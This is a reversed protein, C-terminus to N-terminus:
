ACQNLVVDNTMNRENDFVVSNRLINEREKCM